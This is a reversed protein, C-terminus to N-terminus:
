LTPTKFTLQGFLSYQVNYVVYHVVITTASTCIVIKLNRICQPQSENVDNNANTANLKCIVICLTLM